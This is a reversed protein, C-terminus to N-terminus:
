EGFKFSHSSLYRKAAIGFAAATASSAPFPGAM